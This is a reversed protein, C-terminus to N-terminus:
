YTHKTTLIFRIIRYTTAKDFVIIVDRNPEDRKFYRISLHGWDNIAVQVAINHEEASLMEQITKKDIEIKRSIIETM